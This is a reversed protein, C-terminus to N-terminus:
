KRYYPSRPDVFYSYDFKLLQRSKELDSSLDQLTLLCGLLTFLIPIFLQAFNTVPSRYTNIARKYFSAYFQQRCLEWGENLKQPAAAFCRM